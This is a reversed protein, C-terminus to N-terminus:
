WTLLPWFFQPRPAVNANNNDHSSLSLTTQCYLVQDEDKFISGVMATEVFAQIWDKICGRQSGWSNGAVEICCRSSGGSGRSQREWQKQGPWVQKNSHISNCLKATAVAVCWDPLLSICLQLPPDIPNHISKSFLLLLLPLSPPSTQGLKHNM